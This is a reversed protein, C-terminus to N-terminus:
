RAPWRRCRPCPHQGSEDELVRFRFGCLACRQWVSPRRPEDREDDTLLRDLLAIADRLGRRLAADDGSM